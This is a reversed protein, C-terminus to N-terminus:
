LRRRRTHDSDDHVSDDSTPEMFETLLYRTAGAWMPGLTLRIRTQSVKHGRVDMVVDLLNKSKNHLRM